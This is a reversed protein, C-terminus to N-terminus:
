ELKGLAKEVIELLTEIQFPKTLYANGTRRLFERTGESVTDGTSFIMRAALEPSHQRVDEYLEHGSVHPMMLDTIILDVAGERIRKRAERGDHAVEVRHGCASLVEAIVAAVNPEDDVVLISCSRVPKRAQTPASPEDAQGVIPASTAPLDLTFCTGQGPPSQVRIEGGHEKICGYALSLGLGTGKGVAKTSFFPDFVKGLKDAPIGVGNDEVQVVVRGDRQVTSIRLRRPGPVERLAHQANNVLNLIVQQLQHADGMVAPLDPALELIAEVEDVRLSYELPHIVAQVAANLDTPRREPNQNRAFSLLNQVIRQCRYAERHITRIKEQRHEGDLEVLDSDLLQAYGMVAALPNNLEHAVGSIMEGLASLKESQVLKQQLAHQETIDALLIVMGDTAGGRGRVPSVTVSMRRPGPEMEFESHYRPATELQQAVLKLDVAGLRQMRPPQPGASLEQLLLRAAANAMRLRWDGDIWLLGEGMADVVSELHIREAEAVSELRELTMAVQAAVTTLMRRQPESFARERQAFVSVVGAVRGAREVPQHVWSRWVPAVERQLVGSGRRMERVRVDLPAAAGARTLADLSDGCAAVRLDESIPRYERMAQDWPLHSEELVIVALDPDALRALTDLLVGPVQHQETLNGLSRSLHMLLEAEDERGVEQQEAASGSSGVALALVHAATAAPGLSTADFREQQRALFHLTGLVRGHSLIPQCLYAHWGGAILEGGEAVRADTALDAVVVPLRTEEAAAALSPSWPLRAAPGHSSFFCRHKGHAPGLVLLGSDAGVAPVVLDLIEGHLVALDQTSVALALMRQAVSSSSGTEELPTPLQARPKLGDPHNHRESM